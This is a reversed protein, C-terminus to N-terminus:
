VHIILPDNVSLSKNCANPKHPHSSQSAFRSDVPFARLFPMSSVAAPVSAATYLYFKRKRLSVKARNELSEVSEILGVCSM